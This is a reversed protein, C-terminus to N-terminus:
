LCHRIIYSICDEIQKKSLNLKIAIESQTLQYQKRLVLIEKFCEPLDNAKECVQRKQRATYNGVEYKHLLPSNFYGLAPFVDKPVCKSYENTAATTM